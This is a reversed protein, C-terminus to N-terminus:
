RSRSVAPTRSRDPPTSRRTRATLEAGWSELARDVAAHVVHWFTPLAETEWPDGDNRPVSINHAYPEKEMLDWLAMHEVEAFATEVSNLPIESPRGLADYVEKMLRFANAYFGFWLHLGHEQIRASHELDRGSAGKGGLRWGLQYVSVDFAGNHEPRSLEYAATLGAIGGGLVAVRTM